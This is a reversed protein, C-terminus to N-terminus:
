IPRDSAIAAAFRCRNVSSLVPKSPPRREGTVLGASHAAARLTRRAVWREFTFWEGTKDAATPKVLGLLAYLDNFHSHSASREKLEVDRWKDVFEQPTTCDAPDAPDQVIAGM